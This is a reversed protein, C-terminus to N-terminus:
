ARFMRRLAAYACGVITAVVAVLIAVAVLAAGIMQLFLMM